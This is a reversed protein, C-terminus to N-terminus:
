PWRGSTPPDLSRALVALDFAKNLPGTVADARETSRDNEYAARAQGILDQLQGVVRLLDKRSPREIERAGAPAPMPPEIHPAPACATCGHLWEGDLSGGAKCADCPRVRALEVSDPELQRVFIEAVRHGHEGDRENGLTLKGRWVQIITAVTGKPVVKGGRLHIEYRTVVVLGKADGLRTVGLHKWHHPGRMLVSEGRPHATNPRHM